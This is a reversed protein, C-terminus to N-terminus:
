NSPQHYRQQYKGKCGSSSELTLDDVALYYTVGKLDKTIDIEFTTPAYGLCSIEVKTKGQSVGSIVFEGKANAVAWLEKDPMVVTAVGCSDGYKELM